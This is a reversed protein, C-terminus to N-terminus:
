GLLRGMIKAAGHDNAPIYHGYRDLTMSPRGHGARHAVTEVDVGAGLLQTIVFHRLDHLRVTDPLGAAARVRQWRLTATGPRWHAIGAVDDTLIPRDPGPRRAPPWPGSSSAAATTASCPWSRPTSPSAASGTPRPARPSSARAPGPTSSGAPSPSARRRRPRRRVLAVGRLEGRRAGTTAALALFVLLPPDDAAAELVARVQDAEPPVIPRDTVKPPEAADAPNAAIWRWRVAQDLARHAINHVRRIRAPGVGAGRLKGYLQDLDRGGLRWLPRDGLAPTLHRDIASRYDRSTSPSLDPEALHFWQELLEGFTAENGLTGGDGHELLLRACEREATAKDGHVTRRVYRKAGTAPDRGVYIRIRWSSEGRREISGRM